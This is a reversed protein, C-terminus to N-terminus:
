YKKEIYSKGCEYRNQSYPHSRFVKDMFNPNENEAMREWFSLGRLPNYGAAKALDIGIQDAELEQYQNFSITLQGLVDLIVAVQDGFWMAPVQRQIHRSTHKRENHGIEHGLVNALEDDNEIFDLIGTTVYINGGPVTWANVVDDEILYVNYKLENRREAKRVLKKLMRRLKETRTDEIYDYDQQEHFSEGVGKETELDIPFFMDLAAKETSSAMYIAYEEPSTFCSEDFSPQYRHSCGAHGCGGRQIVPRLSRAPSADLQEASRLSLSGLAIMALPIASFFIKMRHPLSHKSFSFSIKKSPSFYIKKEFFVREGFHHWFFLSPSNSLPKWIIGEKPFTYGYRDSRNKKLM